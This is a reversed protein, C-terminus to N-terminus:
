AEQPPSGIQTLKEGLFSCSSNLNTGSRNCSSDLEDFLSLPRSTSNTDDVNVNVNVNRPGNFVQPSRDSQLASTLNTSNLTINNALDLQLSHLQISEAISKGILWNRAKYGRDTNINIFDCFSESTRNFANLVKEFNHNFQLIYDSNRSKKLIPCALFIFNTHLCTKLIEYISSFKPRKKNVFDNAGAVVVVYDDFNYDGAFQQLGMLVGDFHAGPKIISEM